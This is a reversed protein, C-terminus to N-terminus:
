NGHEEEQEKELLEKLIRDREKGWDKDFVDRNGPDLDQAYQMIMYYYNKPKLKFTRTQITDTVIFEMKAYFSYKGPALNFYYRGSKKEQAKTTDKGQIIFLEKYKEVKRNQINMVWVEVTASDHRVYSQPVVWMTYTSANKNGGM